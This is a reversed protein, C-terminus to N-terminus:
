SLRDLYARVRRGPDADMLGSIVAVADAGADIVSPARDPTIGGIGVLPRSPGLRRRAESVLSLGVADYGTDKSVTGFVPGVAVYTAASGLATTVQESTHTSLGVIARRPLVARASEPTMDEQGLHVGGAGTVLAVDVRDNVVLLSGTGELVRLVAQTLDAFPGAGLTKARLQFLRAGAAACASM